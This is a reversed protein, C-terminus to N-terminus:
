RDRRWVRRCAGGFGDDVLAKESGVCKEKTAGIVIVPPESRIRFAARVPISGSSGNDDSGTSCGTARSTAPHPPELPPSFVCGVRGPPRDVM